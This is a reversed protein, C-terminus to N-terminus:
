KILMMSMYPYSIEPLGAFKHGRYKYKMAPKTYM